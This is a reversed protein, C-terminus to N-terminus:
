DIASHRHYAPNGNGVDEGVDFRPGVPEPDRGRRNEIRFASRFTSDRWGPGTSPPAPLPPPTSGTSRASVTTVQLPQAKPNFTVGDPVTIKTHGEDHGVHATIEYVGPLRATFTGQPSIRAPHDETVNYAAWTINETKGSFIGVDKDVTATFAVNQDLPLTVDDPSVKIEACGGFAGAAITLLGILALRKRTESIAAAISKM